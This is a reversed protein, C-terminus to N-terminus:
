PISITITRTLVRVFYIGPPLQSVQTRGNSLSGARLLRGGADYLTYPEENGGQLLIGASTKGTIYWILKSTTPFSVMRVLSYDFNGDLDVQKLRYFNNNPLPQPDTYSYNLLTHSNGAATVSGIEAYTKGDASREIVFERSNSETATQWQLVSESGSRAANFGAITVPLPASLLAHTTFNSTTGTLLFNAMMGDNANVTNDFVTSLGQDDADPVGQDFTYQAILGSETGTLTSKWNAGIQAANRITNWVRVEDIGGTFANDDAGSINKSMGLTLPQGTATGLTGNITGQLLGNAYVTTGTGDYVFALHTWQNPGTPVAYDLTNPTAGGNDLGIQTQSLHFSYRVGGAGRNGLVTAWGSSPLTTPNVYFEVTGGTALDLQNAALPAINVENNTGNFVLANNGYQIPSGAWSNAGGVDGTIAGNQSSGTNTASNTVVTNSGDNMEYYAVLTNDSLSPIAFMDTRVQSQSRAASWAKVEDIRGIFPQSLDVNAGLRFPQEDNFFFDPVSAKLHGNFYLQAVSTGSNFSLAIHTWQDQPVQVGTSVFWGPNGVQVTGDALYGISFEFGAAGESAMQHVFGDNVATHPVYAWFELTFDGIPNIVDVGANVWNTGTFNLSSNQSLANFSLCLSALLFTYSKRM